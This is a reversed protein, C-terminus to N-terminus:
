RANRLKKMTLTPVIFMNMFSKADEINSYYFGDYNQAITAKGHTQIMEFLDKSDIELEKAMGEILSWKNVGVYYGEEFMGDGNIKFINVTNKGIEIKEYDAM